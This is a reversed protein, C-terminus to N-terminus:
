RYKSYDFSPTKSERERQSIAEFSFHGRTFHAFDGLLEITEPRRWSNPFRGEKRFCKESQKCVDEGDDIYEVLGCRVDDEQSSVMKKFTSDIEDLKMKKSKNEMNEEPEDRLERKRKIEYFRSLLYYDGALMKLRLRSNSNM